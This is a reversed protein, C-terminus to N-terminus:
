RHPAVARGTAPDILTQSDIKCSEDPNFEGGPCGTIRMAQPLLDALAPMASLALGLLFVM